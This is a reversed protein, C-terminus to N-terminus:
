KSVTKSGRSGKGAPVAPIEGRALAMGLTAAADASMAQMMMAANRDRMRQAVQFQVEPTLKEFVPAAKAPKMSQFIRALDSYRKEAAPRQVQAFLRQLRRPQPQLALLLRLLLRRGGGGGGRGTS